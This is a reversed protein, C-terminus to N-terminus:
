EFLNGTKVENKVKQILIYYLNQQAWDTGPYMKYIIDKTADLGYGTDLYCPVEKLQHLKVLTLSIIKGLGRDIIRGREQQTIQYVEGLRYKHPNEIRITTFTDTELKKNWNYTFKITEM